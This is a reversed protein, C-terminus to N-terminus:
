LLQAVKNHVLTPYGGFPMFNKDKIRSSGERVPVVAVVQAKTKEMIKEGTNLASGYWASRAPM